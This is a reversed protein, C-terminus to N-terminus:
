HSSCVMCATDRPVRVIHTRWDRADVRWLKGVLSTGVGLLMKIAESAQLSGVMGVLPAVVGFTACRWGDDADGQPFLCHYCPSSIQRSDFSAVQGEWGMVAGSVLPVKAAVCAANVAHRTAFNDCCDLVLDATRLAVALNERTAKEPQPYVVCDPNLQALCQSLSHVKYMGIRETTHAIQRQLNSLEVRDADFVELQGVGSAALYMAVPSGLGGAGIIVVRSALLRQQGHVDIEPLLVHRAYRLLQQDNMSM